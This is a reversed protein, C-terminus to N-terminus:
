TGVGEAKQQGAVAQSVLSGLCWPGVVSCVLGCVVVWLVIRRDLGEWVGLRGQAEKSGECRVRWLCESSPTPGKVGYMVIVTVLSRVADRTVTWDRIGDGPERWGRLAM